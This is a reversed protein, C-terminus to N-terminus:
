DLLELAKQLQVDESLELESIPKDSESVVKVDPEIGIGHICVGSPTFYRSTTISMGSGDGFPVITQVIGKGYSKEGVVTAKGNDKLAGTLVESASASGGNILVVIPMDLSKEDSKIEDKKENKDETYTILGEPLLMDAIKCVSDFDGGPNDRLDIVLSKMGATKLAEIHESFEEFTSKSEGPVGIEFSTIRIYGKDQPLMKSKVSTKIIKQRKLEVDFKEKENRLVTMVVSTGEEGGKLYTALESLDSVKYTKGDVAVVEDGSKLGAKEAPSGEMASIITIKGTEADAGLTAGIGVYSSYVEDTYSKFEDKPFYATYPDGASAAMGVLAYDTMKEGDIEYICHKKLMRSVEAIKTMEDKTSVYLSIDKIASTAFATVTATVVATILITLFTHKKSGGQM